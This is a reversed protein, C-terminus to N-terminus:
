LCFDTQHCFNLLSNHPSSKFKLISLTNSINQQGSYLFLHYSASSSTLELYPNQKAQNTQKLSFFNYYISMRILILWCRSPFPSVVSSLRSFQERPGRSYQLPSSAQHTLLLTPEPLTLHLQRHFPFFASCRSASARLPSLRHSNEESRKLERSSLPFWVM